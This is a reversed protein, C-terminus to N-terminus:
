PTACAWLRPSRPPRVGYVGHRLPVRDGTERNRMSGSWRLPGAHVRDGAVVLDAEAPDATPESLLRGDYLGLGVPDGRFERNATFTFFSANVGALAGSFRVLDTTRDAGALDPGFTAELRGRARRPDITLVNVSWPGRTTTDIQGAPAPDAGRVIRTLTVGAALTQSTRSESLDPDGLPLGTGATARGVPVFAATLAVLTVAAHRLLSM